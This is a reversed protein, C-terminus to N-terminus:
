LVLAPWRREGKIGLLIQRKWNQYEKEGEEWDERKKKVTYEVLHEM